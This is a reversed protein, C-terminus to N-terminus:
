PTWPLSKGAVAHGVAEGIAKAAAEGKRFAAPALFPRPPIPGGRSSGNTGMEQYVAVQDPSGILATHGEVHHSITARMEGTAFLPDTGSIRGTQGKAEKESVTREALVAWGAYETGILDKAEQEILKAGRELGHHEAHKVAHPLTRLLAVFGDLTVSKM